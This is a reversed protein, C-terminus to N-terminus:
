GIHIARTCICGMNTAIVACTQSLAETVVQLWNFCHTKMWLQLMLHIQM